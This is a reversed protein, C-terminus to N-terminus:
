TKGCAGTGGLMDVDIGTTVAASGALWGGSVGGGDGMCRLVPDEFEGFVGTEWCDM